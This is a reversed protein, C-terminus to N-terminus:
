TLFNPIRSSQMSNAVGRKGQWGDDINIYTWGHDRLGKEVMARASSLVKEQSVADGWCNWSSWGMPPTLAIKDSVIIRFEKEDEGLENRVNLVVIHEGAEM